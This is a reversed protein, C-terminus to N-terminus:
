QRLIFNKIILPNRVEPHFLVGFIAKNEHKIAQVCKASRALIEFVAPPKIGFSHLSYAKFDGFFLPNAAVTKIQTMGVELSENVVGGFFIGIIEMGACIGLIPKETETLWQFKEPNTLFAYDKLATGSLIIKSCRNLDQSTIELYHRVVCEDIKKAITMIPVVFEYFALSDKKWNLDVVLIM